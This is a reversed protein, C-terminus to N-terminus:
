KQSWNDIIVADCECPVKKVYKEFAETMAGELIKKVEPAIAEDSEVIIEDHVVCIIDAGEPLRQATLILALKTIDACLGQVPYNLLDNAIWKDGGGIALPRGSRTFTHYIEKSNKHKGAIQQAKQRKYDFAKYLEFFGNVIKEGEFYTLGTGQIFTKVSAGYLLGFNAAKALSRQEKTVEEPPIKYISSATLRHIDAGSKFAEIMIEENHLETAVRLEMQGYDALVLKKGEPATFLKRYEKDRPINQLNPSDSSFRGTTTLVPNFQAYIRNDRVFKLLNKGYTKLRKEIGRYELLKKVVPPIPDLAGLTKANTNDVDIGLIDLAKLLQQPSNLNIGGLTEKLESELSNKEKKLDDELVVLSELDFGMGKLEMKHTLKLVEIETNYIDRFSVGEVKSPKDLLNDLRTKLNHLYYVDKAAYEIQQGTLIPTSWDGKQEKKSIDIQLHKNILFKLGAEEHPHLIRQATYLDYIEGQLTLGYNSLMGLEFKINHGVWVHNAEFIPTLMVLPISYLDFIFQKEPTSIQILRVKAQIRILASEEKKNTVYTEVDIGLVESKNVEDIIPAIEEVETVYIPDFKPLEPSSVETSPSNNRDEFNDVPQRVETSPPNNKDEFNDVNQRVETSPLNNRDLYNDVNQRVETSPPNNRDEFNDVPQRVETSPSNNRDLYNDVPQRVETSPSNNRDLYNDVPQRIEVRTIDAGSQKLVKDLKARFAQLAPKDKPPKYNPNIETADLDFEHVKFSM